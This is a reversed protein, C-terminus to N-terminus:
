EGLKNCLFKDLRNKFMNISTANISDEPLSNWKDIVRNGFSYKCVDKYVREKYLKMSHGRTITSQMRFFCEGNVGEYRKLIKFVELMDARVRRTELTKLGLIQIRDKYSKGSCEEIMRTARRQVKELKEIDKVLHPRWAQICYELHPRVLTKYLNLLVKKKRSIITRKILGLIQNGKSAAKGCQKSVKLDNSIIVGLDKEETIEALKQENMKYEAKANNKGFHMVKCKDVNFSMQWRDSWGNLAELDKRLIEVGETTGVRGYMKTDDAFKLLSSMIGIDLDNIYILFLLPGLISGQPVGSLVDEWESAEGNIVVRQKRGRLWVM